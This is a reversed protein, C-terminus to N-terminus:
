NEYQIFCFLFFICYICKKAFLLLTYQVCWGPSNVRTNVINIFKCLNNIVALKNCSFLEFFKFANPRRFHMSPLYAKEINKWYQYYWSIPIKTALTIKVFFVFDNIELYMTGDAQRLQCNIIAQELDLYHLLTIWLPM